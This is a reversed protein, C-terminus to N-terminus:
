EICFAHIIDQGRYRPVNRLLSSTTAPYRAAVHEHEPEWAWEVSAKTDTEVQGSERNRQLLTYKEQEYNEVIRKYKYFTYPHNAITDLTKGGIRQHKRM